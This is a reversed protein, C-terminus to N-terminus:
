SHKTAFTHHLKTSSPADPTSAEVVFPRPRRGAASVWCRRATVASCLARTCLRDASASSLCARAVSSIAIDIPSTFSESLVIMHCICGRRLEAYGSHGLILDLLGLPNLPRLCWHVSSIMLKHSSSSSLSSSPSSSLPSSSSSISLYTRINMLEGHTTFVNSWSETLADVLGPPITLFLNVKAEM